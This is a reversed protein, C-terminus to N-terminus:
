KAVIASLPPNRGQGALRGKAYELVTHEPHNTV